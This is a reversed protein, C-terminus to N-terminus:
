CCDRPNQGGRGPRWGRRPAHQRLIAALRASGQERGVRSLADLISLYAEGRGYTEVCQGLGVWVNAQARIQSVFQKVLTSKGIGAEGSVLVM